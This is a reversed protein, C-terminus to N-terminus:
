SFRLLALYWEILLMWSEPQLHGPLIYGYFADNLLVDDDCSWFVNNFLFPESIM